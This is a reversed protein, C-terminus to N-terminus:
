RKKTIWTKNVQRYQWFLERLCLLNENFNTSTTPMTLTEVTVGYQLISVSFSADSVFKSVSELEVYVRLHLFHASLCIKTLNKQLAISKNAGKDANMWYLIIRFEWEHRNFSIIYIYTHILVCIAELRFVVRNCLDSFILACICHRCFECVCVYVGVFILDTIGNLHTTM